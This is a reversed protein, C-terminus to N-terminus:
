SIRGLLRGVLEHIAQSAPNSWSFATLIEMAEATLSKVITETHERAGDQELCLVAREVNVPSIKTQKWFAAFAQDKQLAYLVPYTKKGTLLDTRASKGTNRQDGWIGLWDDWVQYALGLKWGFQAMKEQTTEDAGACLGGLKICASLLAATKGGIMKWYDELRISEAREYAMDLYQGTTLRICTEQLVYNARNITEPPHNKSMRQLTLFALTFLLDGTNIAQAEGWKMWVTPRGRRFESRDQIDDHILSFNHIMEVAAAVPLALRWSGGVASTSLLVLLPRIRKGGAEAGANVGSWGMHYTLMERLEPIQILPHDVAEKLEEELAPLYEISLAELTM